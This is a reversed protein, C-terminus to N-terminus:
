DRTLLRASLRDTYTLEAGIEAGLDRNEPLDLRRLHERYRYHLGEALTKRERQNLIISLLFRKM